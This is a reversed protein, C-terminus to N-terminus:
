RARENEWILVHLQPLVTVDDWHYDACREGLWELRALLAGKDVEKDINPNGPQLYWPFQRYQAALNYAWEFDKEDFIVVKFITDDPAVAICKKFSDDDFAMDSSPPKPSLVLHNLQSFWSKVVSAQTEMAFRYGLAQGKQILPELPQIAPNGGSLTIWFPPNILKQCQALIEDSTM